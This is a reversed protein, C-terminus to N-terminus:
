LSAAHDLRHFLAPAFLTILAGSVLTLAVPLDVFAVFAFIAVPTLTAVVIQPLFEGFYTELQEVGDVVALM